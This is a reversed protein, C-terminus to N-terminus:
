KELVSWDRNERLRIWQEDGNKESAARQYTHSNAAEQIAIYYWASLRNDPFTLMADRSLLRSEDAPVRELVRNIM